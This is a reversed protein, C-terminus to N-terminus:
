KPSVWFLPTKVLEDFLYIDLGRGPKHLTLAPTVMGEMTRSLVAVFIPTHNWKFILVPERGIKASDVVSEEFWKFINASGSVLSTFNDTTAYSKCEISYHFRYGEANENVPVVDANFLKLAEEGMMAGITAMNKGGVRAGSGPSRIFNIPLAASLKKAIQSEFGSGKAKGGGPKMKRKPKAVPKVKESM